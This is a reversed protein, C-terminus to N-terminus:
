AIEQYKEKAKRDNEAVAKEATRIKEIAEEKEKESIMEEYYVDPNNEQEKALKAIEKWKKTAGSWMAAALSFRDRGELEIAKTADGEAQKRIQALKMTRDEM